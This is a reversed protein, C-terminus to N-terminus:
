TLKVGVLDKHPKQHQHVQTQIMNGLWTPPLYDYSQVGCLMYFPAYWMYLLVVSSKLLHRNFTLDVEYYSGRLSWRSM